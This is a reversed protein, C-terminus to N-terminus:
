YYGFFLLRRVIQMLEAITIHDPVLFKCRDLLPLYKEGEFREIVVPIKNPQQQKAEAADKARAASFCIRRDWRVQPTHLIHYFYNCNQEKGFSVKALNRSLTIAQIIQKVVEFASAVCQLAVPQLESALM